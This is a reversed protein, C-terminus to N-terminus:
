AQRWECKTKVESNPYSHADLLIYDKSGDFPICDRRIARRNRFWSVLKKWM